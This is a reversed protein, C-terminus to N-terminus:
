PNPTPAPTVPPTPPAPTPISAIPTQEPIPQGLTADATGIRGSATVRVVFRARVAKADHDVKYAIILPRELRGTPPVDSPAKAIVNKAVVSLQKGKKDFTTVALIVETHRPETDTAYTWALGRADIRIRYTDPDNPLNWMTLPVGDYVMTSSDASALDAMLRRSPNLPNVRGPGRQLYYGERTYVTVNPRDVTVKIKRFKQPDLSNGAPRYTLTYFNSGDQIASGIEADVDNRGYLTRGGTAKALKNFQYEGGFPDNFAAANGYVGPNVQLGAPDITYLTVRADRLVNVCEQVANNVRNETDIPQNAFNLAPFGRGIWIMNKHGPHGIVAEAVRRLTMFATGYREGLWAGQHVQWPYAVFHHDLAAIVEQKNQTYDHLVTFHQLDVAILMTPTDLKDPQKELFKKLSYRAFAEDEFRTNFEDLLIINVPARPALRDLDATSNITISPDPTRSGAVEFNLINEPDGAETVHFDEKKLDTVVKGKPDTVVMDLVVLRANNRITYTGDPNKVPQNGPAGVQGPAAAPAPTAVPAQIQQSPAAAPPPTQPAAQAQLSAFSSSLSALGLALAYLSLSSKSM